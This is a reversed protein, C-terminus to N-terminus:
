KSQGEIKLLHQVKRVMGQLDPTQAVERTDGIKKLGLARLTDKQDKSAGIYSRVLTVKV